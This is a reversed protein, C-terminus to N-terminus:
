SEDDEECCEESTEDLIEHKMAELCGVVQIVSIKYEMCFKDLTARLINVLAEEKEYPLMDNPDNMM